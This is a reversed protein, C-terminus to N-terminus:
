KAAEIIKLFGAPDLSAQGVLGGSINEQSFFNKANQSNISGGYITVADSNIKDQIIKCNNNANEPFDPKYDGGSSVANPPENVFIIKQSNEKIIQSNGIYSDIQLQDSICLIPTINNELLLKVKNIIDENSEGFYKRRESHGVIAYRCLGVIQSPSFEGTYAGQEFKSVDQAALKISLGDSQIKQYTSTLFPHSPAVIVTGPFNQINKGVQELWTELEVWTKNAKFNAIIYPPAATM